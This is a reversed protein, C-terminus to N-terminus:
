QQCTSCLYLRRGSVQCKEITTQCIWCNKNERGFTFHRYASRKWGMTKAQEVYNQDLTIGKTKYSRFTTEHIMRALLTRETSSLSGVTRNPHIQSRFLIESRLYNGLGAFVSQELLVGGLGHRSYKPKALRRSIHSAKYGSNLLDPGFKGIFKHAEVETQSLM